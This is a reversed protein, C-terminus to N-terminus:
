YRLDLVTQWQGAVCYLVVIADSAPDRFRQAVYNVGAHSFPFENSTPWLKRMAGARCLAANPNVRLVDNKEAEARLAATLSPSEPPEPQPDMVDGPQPLGDRRIRALFRDLFPEVRIDFRGWDNRNGDYTYPFIAQTRGDARLLDCYEWLENIYRDAKAETSDGPLDLWGKKAETAGAVGGDVGAETILFPVAYPCKLIRGAWWGWLERPGRWAWYEHAGWYDLPTWFNIVPGAWAWVPPTDPGTNGPWGVGLNGAVGGVGQKHLLRLREAEMRALGAYGHSWVPYENPGEFLLRNKSVGRSACYAIVEEANQAYIAAAQEPTALDGVVRTMVQAVARDRPTGSQANMEILEDAEVRAVALGGHFQESLPYNRWVIKAHAPIDELYPPKSGDWVLKVFPPGWERLVQADNRSGISGRHHPIWHTAIVAAVAM